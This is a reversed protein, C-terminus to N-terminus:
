RGAEWRARVVRELERELNAGFRRATYRNEVTRRASEGIRRAQAPDNWLYAIAQRLDEVDGPEVLYCNDLHRMGGPEWLGRTRTLIVAKGCAMAQLAASQGSPQDVDKLPIVVFRSRRYLERLQLPTYDSRVRVGPGLLDPPLKRRTVIRLATAGAAQLLTAYDRASDSGVSLIYDEEDVDGAPRWFLEDVGFPLVAVDEPRLAFLDVLPGAAGEGLVIVRDAMRVFSGFVSKVLGGLWSRRQLEEVRHALGQSCYVLPAKALGMRKLMAVPLGAADMTSVLLDARRIARWQVLPLHLYFGVGVFWEVLRELPLCVLRRLERSGPSCEVFSVEFRARDLYPMGYLFESPGAGSQWERLWRARQARYLFLVSIM